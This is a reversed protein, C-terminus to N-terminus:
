ATPSCPDGEMPSPCRGVLSVVFGCLVRLPLFDKMHEGMTDNGPKVRCDLRHVRSAFDHASEQIAPDLGAIVTELAIPRSTVETEMGLM